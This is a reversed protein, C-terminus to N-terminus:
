EPINAIVTNIAAQYGLLFTQLDASTISPYQNRYANLNGSMQETLKATYYQQIRVPESTKKTPLVVEVDINIFMGALHFPSHGEQHIVFLNGYTGIGTLKGKVHQPQTFTIKSLDIDCAYGGMKKYEDLTIRVSKM